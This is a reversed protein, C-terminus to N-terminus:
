LTSARNIIAIISCSERNPVKPTATFVRFGPLTPLVSSPLVRVYSDQCSPTVATASHSLLCRPAVTIGSIGSSATKSGTAVEVSEALESCAFEPCAVEADVIVVEVIIVAVEVGGVAVEVDGNTSDVVEVVVGTVAVEVGVVAVDVSGVVAVDVGGNMSDFVEVVVGTVAVEVVVAVVVGSIMGTVVAVVVVEVMVGSVTVEITVVVVWSVAVVM